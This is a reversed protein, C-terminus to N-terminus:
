ELLKIKFVAQLYNNVQASAQRLHLLLLHLLLLHLLLLHLLLLLQILTQCLGLGLIEVMEQRHHDM